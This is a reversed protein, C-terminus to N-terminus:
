DSTEMLILFGSKVCVTAYEETIENSVTLTNFGEVTGEFPYKFGKMEIAPLSAYPFVSIYKGYQMAKSITVNDNAGLMQIRNNEDILWTKIGTVLGLGLIGINGMVHDLRSGTGGLIVVEDVGKDMALHMAAEIDTDDKVPNLRVLESGTAVARDYAAEGASDFDGVICDPIIGAEECAVFGRDCAIVISDDSSNIQSLIFSPDTNGAGIIFAIM